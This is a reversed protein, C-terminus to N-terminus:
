YYPRLMLYCIPGTVAVYLWIPFVWRTMRRHKAFQNTFAYIYTYLIFPLSIAALIIHSILLILYITRSIGTGGYSTEGSTIHYAVYCLLFLGSCVMATNIFRQHAVVKKLKIMVLAAILCIAVITNLTAHVGPLFDLSVGQPLPLHIERMAAVLGLVLVTVIWTIVKLTKALKLNPPQSLKEEINMILKSHIRDSVTPLVRRIM